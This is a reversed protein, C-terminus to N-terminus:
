VQPHKRHSYANLVSYRLNDLINWYKKSREFNDKMVLLSDWYTDPTLSNIIQIMDDTSKPIIIGNTNFYSGINTSGFYIPITFTSFADIIKETFYNQQYDNEIVISFMSNFLEDKGDYPYPNLDTVATPPRKCSTFFNIPISIEHKRNWVVRRERYGAFIHEMGFGNSYLYSVNFNKQKPVSNVWKGGFLAFKVNPLDLMSEDNTLILDFIYYYKRLESAKWKLQNPETYHNLVSFRDKSPQKKPYCQHIECPFPFELKLWEEGFNEVPIM